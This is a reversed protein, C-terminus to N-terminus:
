LLSFFIIFSSSSAWSLIITYISPSTTSFLLSYAIALDSCKFFLISEDLLFLVMYKSAHLSQRSIVSDLIVFINFSWRTPISPLSSSCVSAFSCGISTYLFTPSYSYSINPVRNTGMIFSSNAINWRNLLKLLLYASTLINNCATYLLFPTPILPSSLLIPCSFLFFLLFHFSTSFQPFHKARHM